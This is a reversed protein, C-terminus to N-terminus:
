RMNVAHDGAIPGPEAPQGSLDTAQWAGSGAALVREAAPACRETSDDAAAHLGPPAGDDAMRAVHAARPALLAALGGAQGWAEAEALALEQAAVSGGEQGLGEVEAAAPDRPGAQALAKVEAGWSQVSAGAQELAPAAAQQGLWEPAIGAAGWAPAPVAAIGGCRDGWGLSWVRVAAAPADQCPAPEAACSQQEPEALAAQGEQHSLALRLAM